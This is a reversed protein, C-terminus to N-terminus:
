VYLEVDSRALPLTKDLYPVNIYFCSSVFAEANLRVHIIPDKAVIQDCDVVPMTLCAM